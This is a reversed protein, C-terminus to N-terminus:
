LVDTLVLHPSGWREEIAYKSPGAGHWRPATGSWEM